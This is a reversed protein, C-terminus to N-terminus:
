KAQKLRNLEHMIQQGRAMHESIPVKGQQNDILMDRLMAIAEMELHQQTPSGQSIQTM